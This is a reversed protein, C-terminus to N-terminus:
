VKRPLPPIVGHNKVEASSTPSNDSERGPRKLMLSLARRCVNSLPPTLQTQDDLGYGAAVCVSSDRSRIGTRISNSINNLRFLVFGTRELRHCSMEEDKPWIKIRLNGTFHTVADDCSHITWFGFFFKLLKAVELQSQNPYNGGQISQASASQRWRWCRCLRFRFHEPGSSTSSANPFPLEIEPLFFPLALAQRRAPIQLGCLM